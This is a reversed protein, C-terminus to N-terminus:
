RDLWDKLKGAKERSIIVAKKTAPQLAMLLKRNFHYNLQEIAEFSILFQRNARFFYNPNLQQELDDLSYNIFHQSNDHTVLTVTAHEAYFYAVNETPIAHLKDGKQVLFRQKYAKHNIKRLLEGFDPQSFTQRFQYYKDLSQKLRDLLIPKLLYDLSYHKFARLAYEDYATIFIIPTDIKVQHFLEFSLQDALQIDSFIIDPAPNQRFWTISDAVRELVALIRINPDYTHILKTLRRSAPAEDELIVINM